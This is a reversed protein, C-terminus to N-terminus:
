GKVGVVFQPTKVEAVEEVINSVAPSWADVVTRKPLAPTPSRRKVPAVPLRVTGYAEVVLRVEECPAQSAVLPPETPIPM